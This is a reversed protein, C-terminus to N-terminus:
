LPWLAVPGCAVVHRGQQLQAYACRSFVVRAGVSPLVDRQMVKAYETYAAIGAGEDRFQLMNLMWFRQGAQWFRKPHM